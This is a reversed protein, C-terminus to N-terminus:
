VLVAGALAAVIPGALAAFTPAAALDAAVIGHIQASGFAPPDPRVLSAVRAELEGGRVREVCVEIVRDSDKRLGTLELDVFALAATELPEDWPPGPPPEAPM